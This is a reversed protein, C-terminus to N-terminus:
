VACVAALDLWVAALLPFRAVADQARQLAEDRKGQHELEQILASWAHWLDPRAEQAKRFTALLDDPGLIARAHHGFALLGDGFIVQRELESEIFALSAMREAQSGCTEMLRSISFDDDVSRRIAESHACVTPKLM